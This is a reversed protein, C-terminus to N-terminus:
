QKKELRLIVNRFKSRYYYIRLYSSSDIAGGKSKTNNYGFDSLDKDSFDFKVNGIRFKEHEHARAPQFDKVYGEISRLKDNNYAEYTERVKITQIIFLFILIFLSLYKLILLSSYNINNDSEKNEEVSLLLGKSILFLLFPVLVFWSQRIVEFFDFDYIIRFQEM